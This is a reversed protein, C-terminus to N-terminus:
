GGFRGRVGLRRARVQQSGAIIRTKVTTRRAGDNIVADEALGRDRLTQRLERAADDKGVVGLLLPQMGLSALNQAVNAAGGLHFSERDIEVVPVPAEPSIRSVNGWVFKDLMVDGIVAIPADLTATLLAQIDLENPKM